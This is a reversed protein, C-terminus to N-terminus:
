EGEVQVPIEIVFTAGKGSGAQSEELYLRAGFRELLMVSLPLGLGTGKSGAKTTFLPEFIEERSSQNVGPGTDRFVIQVNKEESMRTCVSLTGNGEMAEIANQALNVIVQQLAAQDVLVQPLNDGLSLKLSVKDGGFNQVLLQLSERVLPNIQTKTIHLKKDQAFALLGLVVKRTREVQNELMGFYKAAKARSSSNSPKM